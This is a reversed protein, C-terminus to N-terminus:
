MRKAKRLEALSYFTGRWHIGGDRTNTYAAKIFIYMMVLGAYPTTLGMWWFNKAGPIKWFLILQYILTFFLMARENSNGLILLLPLPLVFFLFVGIVGGVVKLINYNFGSFANKMLGNIFENVNKYWEVQLADAGYLVDSNGGVRKIAAALQLDDDPRMAIASHTGARLYAARKVLNFAGVGISAKSSKIKAAWPRQLTTLMMIFTALVSKLPISTATIEPLVTLHDLNNNQALTIAKALTNKHFIIDADTFLLYTADSAKAGTFLAYNKGLWGQPLSTINIVQFPFKSNLERLIEGTGDTSRDNVVIVNFNNYDLSCVSVLANRVDAAENRVAIIITVPSNISADTSLFKLYKIRNGNILLYFALLMWYSLVLVAYIQILM